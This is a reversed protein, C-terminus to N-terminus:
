GIIGLTGLCGENGEDDRMAVRTIKQMHCKTCERLEMHYCIREDQGTGTPFLRESQWWDTIVFYDMSHCFQCNM